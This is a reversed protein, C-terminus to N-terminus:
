LDMAVTAADISKGFEGLDFFLRARFEAFHARSPGDDGPLEVRDLLDLAERFRGMREYVVAVNYANASPPVHEFEAEKALAELAADFRGLDSRYTGLWHWLPSAKPVKAVGEELVAVAQEREGREWRARAEIEFHSSHRLSRLKDAITLADELRGEALAGFGEDILREKDGIDPSPETTMCCVYDRRGFM